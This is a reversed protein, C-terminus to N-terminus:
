ARLRRGRLRRGLSGTPTGWRPAVLLTLVSGGRYWAAGWWRGTQPDHVIADLGERGAPRRDPLRVEVAHRADLLRTRSSGAM